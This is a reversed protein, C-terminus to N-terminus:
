TTTTIRTLFCNNRASRVDVYAVQPDTLLTTAYDKIQAALTIQGTGYIIRNDDSYAKILYEPSTSLIPPLEDGPWPKCTEECLFIPGTEAYPQLDPFPRAALVLMGAGKPVNHLCSRCPTGIGTSVTREATQGNDDPGGARAADVFNQDYTHFTVTM